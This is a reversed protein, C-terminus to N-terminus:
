SIRKDVRTGVGRPTRNVVTGIIKANANDLSKLSTALATRRVWKLRVVFLVGDVLSSIIAPDVVTLCGTVDILVIDYKEKFSVLLDGFTPLGLLKNKM